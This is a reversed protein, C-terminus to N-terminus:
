ERGTLSPLESEGRLSKKKSWSRTNQKCSSHFFYFLLALDKQPTLPEIFFTVMLVKSVEKDSSYGRPRNSQSFIHSKGVVWTHSSFELHQRKFVLFSSHRGKLGSLRQQQRSNMVTPQSAVVAILRESAWESYEQVQFETGIKSRTGSPIVLVMQVIDSNRM